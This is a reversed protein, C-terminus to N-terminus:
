DPPAIEPPSLPIRVDIKHDATRGRYNRRIRGDKAFHFCKGIYNVNIRGQDGSLRFHTTISRAPGGIQPTRM